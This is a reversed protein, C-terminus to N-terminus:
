PCVLNTGWIKVGMYALYSVFIYPVFPVSYRWGKRAVLAWILTALLLIAMPLALLFLDQGLYLALVSILKIDGGGFGENTVLAVLFLVGFVPLAVHTNQWLRTFGLTMFTYFFLALVGLHPVERKKLDVISMWLLIGLVPM